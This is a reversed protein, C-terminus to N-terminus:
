TELNRPQSLESRSRQSPQSPQSNDPNNPNNPNNSNPAIRTAGVSACHAKGSWLEFIREAGRAETPAVKSVQFSKLHGYIGIDVFTFIPEYVLYAGLHFLPTLIDMQKLLRLLTEKM